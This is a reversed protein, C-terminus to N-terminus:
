PTTDIVAWADTHTTPFLPAAKTRTTVSLRNESIYADVHFMDPSIVHAANAVRPPMAGAGSFGFLEAMLADESSSHPLREDPGYYRDARALTSGVVVQDAPMYNYHTGGSQYSENYTFIKLVYGSKTQLEGRYDAGGSVLYGYKAESAPDFYVRTQDLRRNDSQSKIATNNLAGQFADVGMIAFEPRLNGNQRVKVCAADLDGLIDSGADSWDTGATIFNESNRKWDYEDNLNPQKGTLISQSALWEMLRIIRRLHEKHNDSILERMRQMRDKAQYPTEGAKRFLLQHAHVSGSEEALPFDYTAATFRELMTEEHNTKVASYTGRKVLQGLEENGKIIDIDVVGTDKLFVTKAGTSSRGFISQFMTPNGIFDRQDFMEVMYRKYLEIPSGQITLSM